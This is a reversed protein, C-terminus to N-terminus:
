PYASPRATPVLALNKPSLRSLEVRVVAIPALARAEDLQAISVNCLGVARTKGEQRLRELAGVREADDPRGAISKSSVVSSLPSPTSSGGGTEGTTNPFPDPVFFAAECVLM